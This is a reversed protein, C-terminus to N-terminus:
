DNSKGKFRYAVFAILVAQIVLSVEKSINESLFELERATNQLSGFLLASFVIGLPNNRALLAVAIGTFGYGPSFGEIVKHESGMVENVGVLGALAGSIVFVSLTRYRISIGAFQAAKKNTGMTRLEFGSVTHFLYYYVLVSSVIAIFLASNVPTTPFFSIAPIWYHNSILETESAQNFPNKFRYLILYSVWYQSIFNLLLTTVVEHSGRFAKFYGAVFGVLAGAVASVFIGLPVALYWPIEPLWHGLAVVAISGWLLQGEAGINFLGAHFCLAVSLGTFILPTSYFLTYGLGFSTFFTNYLAEFLVTPSEGLWIVLGFSCLLALFISTLLTGLAKM